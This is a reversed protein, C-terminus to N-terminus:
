GKGRQFAERIKKQKWIELDALHIMPTNRKDSHVNVFFIPLEWKKWNRQVTRTSVGLYAAISKWGALFGAKEGFSAIIKFNM